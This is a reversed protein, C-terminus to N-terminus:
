PENEALKGPRPTNSPIDGVSYQQVHTRVPLLDAWVRYSDPRQPTFSFAYEGDGVEEPHGHHYDTETNDSILLHIKHTHTEELDSLRV